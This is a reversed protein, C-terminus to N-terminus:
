FLLYQKNIPQVIHLVYRISNRLDTQADTSVQKIGYIGNILELERKARIGEALELNGRDAEKVRTGQRSYNRSKSKYSNM